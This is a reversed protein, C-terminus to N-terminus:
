TMSQGPMLAVKDSEFNLTCLLILELCILFLCESKFNVQSSKDSVQSSTVAYGGTHDQGCSYIDFGAQFWRINFICAFFINELGNEVQVRFILQLM